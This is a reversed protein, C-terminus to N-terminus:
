RNSSIGAGPLRARWRDAPQLQLADVAVVQMAHVCANRQAHQRGDGADGARALGAEDRLGQRLQHQQVQAVLRFVIYGFAGGAFPRCHDFRGAAMQRAVHVGYLTQHLHVLFRDPARRPRVEGGVRAQEVMHALQESGRGIRSAAAVIGSPEREVDGLPAALGALALAEDAHFQQEHGAHVRRARRAM